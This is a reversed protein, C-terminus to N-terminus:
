SYVVKAKKLTFNLHLSHSSISLDTDFIFKQLFRFIQSGLYTFDEWTVSM